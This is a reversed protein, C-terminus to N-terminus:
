YKRCYNQVNQDFSYAVILFNADKDSINIQRLYKKQATNYIDDHIKMLEHHMEPAPYKKLAISYCSDDIEFERKVFDCFSISKKDLILLVSNLRKKDNEHKIKFLIKERFEDNPLNYKKSKIKNEKITISQKEGKCSILAILLFFLYTSIQKM